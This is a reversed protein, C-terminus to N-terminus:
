SITSTIQKYESESRINPPSRFVSKDTIVDEDFSIVFNILSQLIVRHVSRNVGLQVNPHLKFILKQIEVQLLKFFNVGYILLLVAFKYQSQKLDQVEVLVQHTLPTGECMLDKCM